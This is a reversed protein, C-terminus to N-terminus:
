PSMNSLFKSKALNAAQASELASKLAQNKREEEYRKEDIRRSILIALKDKSYPNDVAIIQTSIM